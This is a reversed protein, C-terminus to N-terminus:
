GDIFVAPVWESFAAINTFVGNQERWDLYDGSSSGNSVIGARPNSNQIAVLREPQPYGLPRLLVARIVSFIATNAGIGLAAALIALAAPGPSKGFMRIAFRVNQVWDM